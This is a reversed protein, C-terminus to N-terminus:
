RCFSSKSREIEFSANYLRKLLRLSQEVRDDNRDTQYTIRKILNRKIPITTYPVLVGDRDFFNILNEKGKDYVYEETNRDVSKRESLIIRFEKENNWEKNKTSSFFFCTENIINTVMKEVSTKMEHSLKEINLIKQLEDPSYSVNFTRPVFHKIIEKNAVHTAREIDVKDFEISYRASSSGYSKWFINEDYCYTFCAVYCDKVNQLCFNNLQRYLKQFPTGDLALNERHLCEKRFEDIAYTHETRDNLYNINTCRIHENKIIGLLGLSGTYHYVKEM